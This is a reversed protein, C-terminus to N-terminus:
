DPLGSTHTLLHQVTVQDRGDGTFKPIFKKVPDDLKFEGRDYLTMLATVSIPKSISGLLFMADESSAKGFARTFAARRGAVHLVAAAIDGRAISKALIDAASDLSKDDSAALLQNGLAAALGIQLFTRRRM